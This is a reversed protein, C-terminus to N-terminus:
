LTAAKPFNPIVARSHCSPISPPARMAAADLDLVRGQALTQNSQTVILTHAHEQVCPRELSM